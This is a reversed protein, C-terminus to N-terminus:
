SDCDLVGEEMVFWCLERGNSVESYEQPKFDVLDAEIVSRVAAATEAKTRPRTGAETEVHILVLARQKRDAKADDAKKENFGLGIGALLPADDLKKMQAAVEACLIRARKDSMMRLKEDRDPDLRLSPQM